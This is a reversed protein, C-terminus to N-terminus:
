QVHVQTGHRPPPTHLHPKHPARCGAQARGTTHQGAVVQVCPAPQGAHGKLVVSPLPLCTCNTQKHVQKHAPLRMTHLCGGASALGSKANLLLVCCSVKVVHGRNGALESMRNVYAAWVEDGNAKTYFVRGAASLLAQLKAKSLQSNVDCWCPRCCYCFCFRTVAALRLVAVGEASCVCVCLRGEM